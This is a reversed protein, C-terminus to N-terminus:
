PDPEMRGEEGTMRRRIFAALLLLLPLAILIIFSFVSATTFFHVVMKQFNPTAWISFAILIFSFPFVIPRYETLKLCQTTGLVLAYYWMSIQVFGGLMWLVMVISEVHELFDALSIYRSAIFVPFNFTATNNGLLLLSTFGTVIMTILMGLVALMGRRLTKSQDHVYPFLFTILLFEMFWAHSIISGKLSPIIGNEMVPLMNDVRYDPLLMLFLVLILLVFVPAVITSFRGLLEIGGHVAFASVFVICGMVVNIPTRTLLTGVIFEGYERIILGSAHMIFFLFIGALLKGFWRGFVQELQQVITQNPFLRHLKWALYVTLFGSTSGWIASLWLDKEANKAMMSPGVVNLPTTNQVIDDETDIKVTINWKDGEIHPILRTRNKKLFFAVSGEVGEMSISVTATKIEERLWMVGRTAKRDIVGTMAGNQFVAAGYLIPGRKNENLNYIEIVPLIAAEAPHTLMEQFNKLTVNLGTEEKALEKLVESIDGELSSPLKLIERAEDQSVFLKARERPGPHRLLFDIHDLIGEKAVKRSFIYIKNHGWFVQRPLVEQLKATAEAITKGKASVVITEENESGQAGQEGGSSIKAVFLLVSLLLQKDETLDLATATIIALDNLETRNWCGPLLLISALLIFIIPMRWNKKM